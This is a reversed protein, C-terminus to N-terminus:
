LWLLGLDAVAHVAVSPWLSGSWWRLWGLLLGAALALPLSVIGYVPIHAVAFALSTIVTAMAAGTHREVLAYMVGRFLFEEAPATFFGFLLVGQFVQGVNPLHVTPATVLAAGVLTLGSIGGGVITPILHPRVLGLPRRGMGSLRGLFAGFLGLSAFALLSQVLPGRDLRLGLRALNFLVGVASIVGLQLALEFLSWPTRVKRDVVNAASM